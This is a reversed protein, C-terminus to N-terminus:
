GFHRHADESETKKARINTPSTMIEMADFATLGVDFAFQPHQVGLTSNCRRNIISKSNGSHYSQLPKVRLADSHTELMSIM